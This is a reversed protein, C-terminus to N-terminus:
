STLTVNTILSYFIIMLDYMITYLFKITPIYIFILFLIQISKVIVFCKLTFLLTMTTCSRKDVYYSCVIDRTRYYIYYFIQIIIVIASMVNTCMTIVQVFANIYVNLLANILDMFNINNNDSSTAMSTLWEDMGKASFLSTKPEYKSLSLPENRNDM